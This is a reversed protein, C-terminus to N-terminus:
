GLLERDAGGWREQLEPTNPGWNLHTYDKSKDHKQPKTVAACPIVTGRLPQGPGIAEDGFADWKADEWGRMEDAEDDGAVALLLTKVKPLTMGYKCNWDWLTSVEDGPSFSRLPIKQGEETTRYPHYELTRCELILFEACFYDGVDKMEKVVLVYDGDVMHIGRKGDEDAAGLGKFRGM